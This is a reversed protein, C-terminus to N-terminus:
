EPSTMGLVGAPVVSLENSSDRWKLLDRPLVFYDGAYRM